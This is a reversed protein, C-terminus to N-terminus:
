KATISGSVYEFCKWANLISRKAFVIIGLHMHVVMFKEPGPTPSSAGCPFMKSDKRKSIRLVVNQILCKVWLHACDSGMAVGDVQIYFKSNFTFSSEETALNLLDRFDNKSIGKVLTDPTKFPKKVCIAITEGLLINIFLADVDLSAMYLDSNQTLIEDVFTFSDKVTFENQTIDSLIPILFKALKYTPTGIM